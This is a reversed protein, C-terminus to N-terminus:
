GKKKVLKLDGCWFLWKPAEELEILVAYGPRRRYVRVTFVQERHSEVFTRYDDQLRSYDDRGMIRDYDLMVLDGDQLGNDQAGFEGVFKRIVDRMGAANMKKKFDRLEKQNM